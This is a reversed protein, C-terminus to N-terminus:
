RILFSKLRNTFYTNSFNESFLRISYENMMQQSDRKLAQVFEEATNCRGGIQSYDCDIGAFAEDTGFISKGYSMAEITKTKMGSGKFIPAIVGVANRYEEDIDDAYGVLTVNPPCSLAKVMENQCCSGVIRFQVDVYPAVNTIFWCIGEVNPFFDSGVFLYYPTLSTDTPRIEDKTREPFTIPLIVDAKRGFMVSFGLSDRENLCILCDAYKAARKENFYTSIYKPWSILPNRSSIEQRALATDLNHAFCISKLSKGSLKKYLSGFSSSEIFVYDPKTNEVEALIKREEAKTVGYSGFQVLSIFVNKLNTRPLYYEILNKGGVIDRLADRNRKMVQSAGNKEAGLGRAIYLIKM